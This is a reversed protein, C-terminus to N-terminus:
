QSVPQSVGNELYPPYVSGSPPLSVHMMVGSPTASADYKRESLAPGGSVAASTFFM